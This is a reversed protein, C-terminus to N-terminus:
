RTTPTPGHTTPTPGHTTPTPGNSSGGHWTRQMYSADPGEGIHQSTREGKSFTSERGMVSGADSRRAGMVSGSM